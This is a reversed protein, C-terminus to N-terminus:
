CCLSSKALPGARSYSVSAGANAVDFASQLVAFKLSRGCSLQEPPIGVGTDFVEIRIEPGRRRCGVLVRGGAPTYKLANRILNRLVGELLVVDSMVVAQTPCVRLELGKRRAPEHSARCLNRLLPQLM